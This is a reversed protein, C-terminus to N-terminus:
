LKYAKIIQALWDRIATNYSDLVYSSMITTSSLAFIDGKVLSIKILIARILM